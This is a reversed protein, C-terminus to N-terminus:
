NGVRAEEVVFSTGALESIRLCQVELGKATTHKVSM